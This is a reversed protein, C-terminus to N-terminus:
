DKLNLAAKFKERYGAGIPIRQAGIKIIAREISEIKNIAVIFSKHVRIFNDAPLQSEMTQFNQLTMIRNKPTVIRLYAGQGEIYLIDAFNIREMRYETKVFMYDKSPKHAPDVKIKDIAKLFREFSYPKLLYDTVSYDFGSVAYQDYASVIIIQPPSRLSELFQLGSFQEMQIDLFVLDVPNGKIFSIADLANNFSALLNLLPVQRIFGELKEVALPTDDIVICNVAM